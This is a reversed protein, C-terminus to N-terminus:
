AESVALTGLPRECREVKSSAEQAHLGASSALLAAILSVRIPKM